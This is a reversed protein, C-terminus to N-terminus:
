NTNTDVIELETNDDELNDDDSSDLTPLQPSHSNSIPHVYENTDDTTNTTSTKPTNLGTDFESDSQNILRLPKPRSVVFGSNMNNDSSKDTNNNNINQQKNFINIDENNKYNRTKSIIANNDDDDDDDDFDQNASPNNKLTPLGIFAHRFARKLFNGEDVAIGADRGNSDVYNRVSM